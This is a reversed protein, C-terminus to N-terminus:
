KQFCGNMTENLYIKPRGGRGTVTVVLVIGNKTYLSDRHVKMEVIVPLPTIDNLLIVDQTMWFIIIYFLLFSIPFVHIYQFINSMNM